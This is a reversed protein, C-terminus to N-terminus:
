DSALEANVISRLADRGVERLAERVLHAARQERRVIQAAQVAAPPLHSAAHRRLAPMSAGRERAIKTPSAGRALQVDIVSM